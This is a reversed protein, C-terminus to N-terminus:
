QASQTAGLASSMGFKSRWRTRVLYGKTTVSTVQELSLMADQLYGQSRVRDIGSKIGLIEMNELYKWGKQM